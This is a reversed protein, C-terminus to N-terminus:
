KMVVMFKEYMVTDGVSVTMTDKRWKTLIYWYWDICSGWLSKTIPDNFRSLLVVKPKQKKKNM